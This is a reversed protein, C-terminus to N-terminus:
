LQLVTQLLEDTIKIMRAGAEFARQYAILKVAEEDLSVGSASERRNVLEARLSDDFAQLDSADRALTGAKGVVGGYYGSFTAGGLSGVAADALSAIRLANTNDGPLGAASAAAIKRPDTLAVSINSVAGALPSVTFADGAAVTGTVVVSIGDFGVPNGSAYTGSAVVAGSDRNTVTYANGAGISMTYESLTLAAPDTVTASTVSAGASANTASLALPAFFDNGTTGDLGVGASHLLNMEKTLAAALRRLDTLPGSAIASRSALLGGLRGKDIRGTVDVGDISLGLNGQADRFTSLPNVRERDVLNRMGVTVTLAGNADELTGIEALGSLESVLKDRADRLDNAKAAGGGAEVEVIRANLRSIDTAIANVRGAVDAIEGNVEKVTGLLDSEMRKATSALSNAKSLLVTRQAADAPNASLAQWANFFANLDNSLGAGSADNFVQEVQGLVQDMATSKGLNQEQGLLQADVFRDYRREVATVTVGRGLYGGATPAPTAIELIAEQRTYGPTNVNAINHSAVNLAAQSAFVASKGINLLNLLSV